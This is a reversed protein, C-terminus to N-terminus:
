FEVDTGGKVTTVAGHSCIITRLQQKKFRYMFHVANISHFCGSVDSSAWSEVRHPVITKAKKIDVHLALLYMKVSWSKPITVCISYAPHRCSNSVWFKLQLLVRDGSATFTRQGTSVKTVIFVSQSAPRTGEVHPHAEYETHNYLRGLLPFGTRGLDLVACNRTPRPGM